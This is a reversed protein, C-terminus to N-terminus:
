FVLYTIDTTGAKGPLKSYKLTLQSDWNPSASGFFSTAARM